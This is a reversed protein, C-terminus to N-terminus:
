CSSLQYEHVNEVDWMDLAAELLTEKVLDSVNDGDVNKLADCIEEISPVDETIEVNRVMDLRIGAAELSRLVTLRDESKM